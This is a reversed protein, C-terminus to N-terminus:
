PCGSRDLRGDTTAVWDHPVGFFGVSRRVHKLPFYGDILEHLEIAYEEAGPHLLGETIKREHAKIENWLSEKNTGTPWFDGIVGYKRMKHEQRLLVRKRSWRDESVVEGNHYEATKAKTMYRVALRGRGPHYREVRINTQVSNTATKLLKLLDATQSRLLLHYNFRNSRRSVECVYLAVVSKGSVHRCAKAWLRKMEDATVDVM